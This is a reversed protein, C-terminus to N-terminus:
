SKMVIRSQQEDVWRVIAGIDPTDANPRPTTRHLEPAEFVRRLAETWLQPKAPPLFVTGDPATEPLSGASSAICPTGHQAAEHLPLGFGDYWSPYLLASAHAYLDHLEADSVQPLHTIWDHRLDPATRTQFSRSPHLQGIMILRVDAYAPDERLAQVASVATATNKRPDGVGLTLVYRPRRGDATPWLRVAETASAHVVSSQTLDSPVALRIVDCRDQPAHAFREADLMTTRSVCFLKQARRILEDPNVALHWVRMKWTFWPPHIRFSFDHLILAYPTDLFGTFGLNCLLVADYHSAHKQRMGKDSGASRTGRVTKYVDSRHETRGRDADLFVRGTSSKKLLSIAARDLAVVGMLSALTWLKNPWRLHLHTIRPHSRFPEPLEPRHAGTTIFDFAIEPREKLLQTLIQASARQVGGGAPDTLPRADILIHPHDSM